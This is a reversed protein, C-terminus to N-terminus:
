PPLAISFLAGTTGRSDRLATMVCPCSHQEASQPQLVWTQATELTSLDGCSPCCPVTRSHTVAGNWSKGAQIRCASPHFPKCSFVHGDSLPNKKQFITIKALSHFDDALLLFGGLVTVM